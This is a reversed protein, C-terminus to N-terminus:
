RAEFTSREAVLAAFAHEVFARVRANKRMDTHVVLFLGVLAPDLESSAFSLRVLTEDTALFSPVFGIGVGARVASARALFSRSRLAVKSPDGYRELLREPPLETSVGVGRVTSHARLDEPKVPTGRADLYGRSAHLAGAVGGVRKVVVEGDPPRVAIRLAVDVEAKELDVFRERVELEVTISPHSEHFSAVIPPLCVSALDDVTSVRVVGVAQEDRSRVKRFAANAQEEMALAHAYLDQGTQTLAFGRPSRLFLKVRLAEELKGIRRQVTSADIRLAEAATALTGGRAMALFTELDSWGVPM